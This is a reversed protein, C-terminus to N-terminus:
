NNEDIKKDGPHKDRGIDAQGTIQEQQQEKEKRRRKKVVRVTLLGIVLLLGVPPIFALLLHLWGELASLITLMIFVFIGGWVRRSGTPGALILVLGAGWGLIHFIVVPIRALPTKVYWLSVWTNREPIIHLMRTFKIPQGTKPIEIRLPLRGPAIAAAEAPRGVVLAHAPRGRGSVVRQGARLQPVTFKGPQWKVHGDLYLVNTGDPDHRCYAFITDSPDSESLGSIYDYSIERRRGCIPCVFVEYTNLYNPYLAELTPPFREDNDQAFMHLALGIQKLNSTCSARRAQERSKSLAPLLMTALFAVLALVALISLLRHIRKKKMIRYITYAIFLVISIFVFGVLVSKGFQRLFRMYLSLSRKLTDVIPMVAKHEARANGDFRFYKYGAPSYIIWSVFSTQVDVEPLSLKLKGAQSLPSAQHAFVMEVGFVEEQNRSKKLPLLIRDEEQGPKVGKGAVFGSWLRAGDPLKVRLFQRQNNKILYHAYTIMQGDESLVTTVEVREVAAPLIKLDKYRAIDLYAQWGPRVYRYTLVPPRKVLALYVAPIENSDVADLGNTRSRDEGLELNARTGIALYGSERQTKLTKIVPMQLGVQPGVELPKEFTLVLSYTGEVKSHLVVQWIETQNNEEPGKEGGSVPSVIEKSRINPGTIELNKLDKPVELWFEQVGATEITYRVTTSGTLYTESVLYLNFVEATVAPELARTSLTLQWGPESYRYALDAESRMETPLEEIGIEILDDLADTKLRFPVQADVAVFGRDRTVKLPKVVPVQFREEVQTILKELQLEVSYTGATRGRLNIELTPMEKADHHKTIKYDEIDKGSVEILNYDEPLQISLDFIGPQGITYAVQGFLELSNERVCFLIETQTEIRAETQRIDLALQYDPKPYTYAAALSWGKELTYIGALEDTEIRVLGTTVGPTVELLEPVKLVVEGSQREVGLAQVPELNIRGPLDPLSTETQITLDYEDEVSQHLQVLLGNGPQKQWSKIGRGDVSLVKHGAPLKLNLEQVKGQILKYQFESTSGIAGSGLTHTTKTQVSLLPPLEGVEVPRTRWSLELWDITGLHAQCITTGEETEQVKLDLVDNAVVELDHGPLELELRSVAARPINLKVKNWGMRKRVLVILSLNVNYRGKGKVRLHYVPYGRVSCVFAATAPKVKYDVFTVRSGTLGSDVLPIYLTDKSFVDLDLTAKLDVHQDTLVAHYNAQNIAFDVAPKDEEAAPLDFPLSLSFFLVALFLVNRLFFPCYIHVLEKM